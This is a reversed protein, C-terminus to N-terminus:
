EEKILKYVEDMLPETLFREEDQNIIVRDNGSTLYGVLSVPCDFDGIARVIDDFDDAVVLICNGGFLLYPNLDLFDCVEITEQRIIIKKLDCNLGSKNKEALNWLTAFIGGEGVGYIQGYEAIKKVIEWSFSTASTEYGQMRRVYAASYRERLSEGTKTAIYKSTSDALYGIQVICRKENGLEVSNERLGEGLLALVLKSTKLEPDTDVVVQNIFLDKEDAVEVLGAIIDRLEQEELAEPISILAQLGSPKNTSISCAEIWIQDILLRLEMGIVSIDGSLHGSKICLLTCGATKCATGKDKNYKHVIREVSRSYVREPLNGIRM